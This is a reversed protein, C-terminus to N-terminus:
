VEVFDDHADDSYVLKLPRAVVANEKKVSHSPASSSSSTVSPKAPSTSRRDTVLPAIPVPQVLQPSYGALTQNGVSNNMALLSSSLAAHPDRVAPVVATHPPTQKAVHILTVPVVPAPLKVPEVIHATEQPNAMQLRQEEEDEEEESDSEEIVVIPRGAAAAEGTGWPQLRIPTSINQEQYQQVVPGEDNYLIGRNIKVSAAMPPTNSDEPPKQLEVQSPLSQAAESPVPSALSSRLALSQTVSSAVSRATATVLQKPVSHSQASSSPTTEEDLEDEQELEFTDGDDDVPNEDGRSAEEESESLRRAIEVQKMQKELDAVQKDTSRKGMLGRFVSRSASEITEQFKNSKGTCYM